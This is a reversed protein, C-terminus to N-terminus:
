EDVSYNLGRIATRLPDDAVRFNDMQVTIYPGGRSQLPLNPHSSLDAAIYEAKQHLRTSRALILEAAYRDKCTPQDNLVM